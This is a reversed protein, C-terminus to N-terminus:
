TFRDKNTFRLEETVSKSFSTFTDRTWSTGDTNRVAIETLPFGNSETLLLIMRSQIEKTTSDYAPYGSAFSKVLDSAEWTRLLDYVVDGTTFTDTANNTIINIIFTDVTGVTGTETLGAVTLTNSTIWNWGVSLDSAEKTLSYYNSSDSGLKIEM